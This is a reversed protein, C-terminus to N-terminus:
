RLLEPVVRLFAFTRKREQRSLFAVAAHEIISLAPNVLAVAHWDPRLMVNITTIVYATTWMIWSCPSDKFPDRYVALFTPWTSIALALFVIMNAWTAQRFKFWIVGGVVGLFITVVEMPGPWKFHRKTLAYFFIYSCGLFGVFFQLTAAPDGSMARFTLANLLTLFMGVSWMAINPTSHKRKMQRRYLIFGTGHFVAAAIGLVLRIQDM